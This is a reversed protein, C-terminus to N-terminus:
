SSFFFGAMNLQQLTVIHNKELKKAGKMSIEDKDM